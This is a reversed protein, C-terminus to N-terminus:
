KKRPIALGSLVMLVAAIFGALPVGTPDMGTTRAAKVTPDNCSVDYGIISYMSMISIKQIVIVVPQVYVSASAIDDTPDYQDEATLVATNTVKTDAEMLTPTVFLNLVASSGNLITGVMWIGTVPDYTGQSSTYGNFALGDPILDTIQVGTASDPGNNRATLIFAFMQGVNLKINSATKILQVDAAPTITIYASETDNTTYGDAAATVKVPNLPAAGENAHFVASVGGNVTNLPISHNIAPNTFSGWPVTLTIPIGDPVHGLAPDHYAGNSDRSLDATVQSTEGNYIITPNAAVNLILWPGYLVNGQVKGAPSTNSGWWNLTANVTGGQNSIESNIPNNGVIQNFHVECTSYINRIAGGNNAINGTFTSETVNLIGGDKNIAGGNTANNDTFASNNVTLTGPRDNRLAGGDTASNGIFTSYNVNLPGASSIAGGYTASNDTFISRNVTITGYHNDIAGSYVNCSNNKFTSDNVTLTGFNNNIAGGQNTATNGSFTSNTVTLTGTQDNNIAGGYQATNNTFICGNVTVDGSKSIAGGYMANNNMFTSRKVTITGYHNDIAGSYATCNNNTFTCDNVILTGLNNNIAGGQSNARNGTFTCGNVALIGSSDIAGGYGSNGNTFTLNQITVNVGSNITFIRDAGQADIITGAQSQGQITMNKNIVIGRNDSGNYIGNAINVTGNENVTGTANKISLKPGSGTTGNYASSQGDWSDNGSSGNVYITDGPAASVAHAGFTFVLALSLLLIPITIKSNNQLIQNRIKKVGKTSLLYKFYLKSNIKSYKNCYFPEVRLKVKFFCYSFFALNIHLGFNISLKM